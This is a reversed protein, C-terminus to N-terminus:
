HKSIGEWVADVADDIDQETLSLGGFLYVKAFSIGASAIFTLLIEPKVNRLTGTRIGEIVFDYLPRNESNEQRQHAYFPSNTFQEFFILVSPNQKYFDFLTKWMKVFRARFSGNEELVPNIAEAAQMRCHHYLQCILQEKSEFYHYITGTAVDANHAILSMPAGHFGNNRILELASDFIAKKKEAVPEM